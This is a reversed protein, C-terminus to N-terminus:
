RSALHGRVEELFARRNEPTQFARERVLVLGPQFWLEIADPTEAVRTLRSWPYAIECHAFKGSLVDARLEYLCRITAAGRFMEGIMKRYARKVYWDHYRGYLLGTAAGVILIGITAFVVLTYSSVIVRGLLNVSVGGAVCLAFVWQDRCRRRLYATTSKALRVNADVLDDLTSEFEVVTM